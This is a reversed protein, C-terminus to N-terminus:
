PYIQWDDKTNLISNIEKKYKLMIEESFRRADKEIWQNSYKKNINEDESCNIYNEDAKKYRKFYRSQYCHRLEHLLIFAENLILYNKNCKLKYAFLFISNDMHNYTGKSLKGKEIYLHPHFIKYLMIQFKNKFAYITCDLQRYRKPLKNIIANIQKKSMFGCHKVQM